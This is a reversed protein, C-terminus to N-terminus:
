AALQNDNDSEKGIGNEERRTYLQYLVMCFRVLSDIYEQAQERTLHECGKTTLVEDVTLMGSSKDMEREDKRFEERNMRRQNEALFKEM